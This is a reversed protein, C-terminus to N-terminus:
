TQTYTFTITYTGQSAFAQPTMAAGDLYGSSTGSHVGAGQINNGAPIDFTAVASIVGNTPSGWTLGKRAYAPSGGTPETGASAGPTTTYAAGHTAAVGYATALNNKQVATQITM